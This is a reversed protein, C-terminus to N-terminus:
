VEKECVHLGVKLNMNPTPTSNSSTLSFSTEGHESLPNPVATRSSYINQAVREIGERSSLLPQTTQNLQHVATPRTCDEAELERASL